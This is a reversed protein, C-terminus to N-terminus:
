LYVLWENEYFCFGCRLFLLLLLLLLCEKKEYSVLGELASFNLFQSPGRGFDLFNKTYSVLFQCSSNLAGFQWFNVFNLFESSVRLGLFQLALGLPLNRILLILYIHSQPCVQYSIHSFQPSSLTSISIINNERIVFWFDNVACLDFTCKHM